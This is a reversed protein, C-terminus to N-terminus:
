KDESRHVHEIKGDISVHIGADKLVKELYEIRQLLVRVHLQLAEIAEKNAGRAIEEARSKSSRKIYWGGFFLSLATFILGPWSSQSLLSQIIDVASDM